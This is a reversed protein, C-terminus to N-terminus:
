HSIVNVDGNKQGQYMINSGTHVDRWAHQLGGRNVNGVAANGRQQKCLGIVHQRSIKWETRTCEGTRLGTTVSSIGSTV